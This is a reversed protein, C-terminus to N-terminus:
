PLSSRSQPAPGSIAAAIGDCLRVLPPKGERVLTAGLVPGLQGQGDVRTEAQLTLLGIWAPADKAASIPLPATFQGAPITAPESELGPPLDLARITIPANHGGRRVAILSLKASSGPKFFLGRPPSDPSLAVVRAAEREPGLALSYTREVGAASPGYLDRIVLTYEGDAPATWTGIPDLTDLPCDAPVGKPQATDALTQLLAGQADHIAMDLDMALGSREGVAEIRLPEGKKAPFRYWDVEGPRLFRGAIVVSPTVKQAEARIDHRDDTERTVEQDVVDFRLAGRSGPHHYIFGDLMAANALTWGGDVALAPVDVGVEIRELGPAFGPGAPEGGPLDYGFLTVPESRGRTLVTPFAAVLRPGTFIALRYM